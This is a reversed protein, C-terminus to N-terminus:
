AGGQQTAVSSIRGNRRAQQTWRANVAQRAQASRRRGATEGPLPLALALSLQEITRRHLRVENLLPNAKPIQGRDGYVLPDADALAKEALEDVSRCLAALLELEVPDCSYSEMVATWIRIGDDNLGPPPPPKNDSTM